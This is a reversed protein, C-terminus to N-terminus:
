APEVSSPEIPAFMDWINDYIIESKRQRFHQGPDAFIELEGAPVFTQIGHRSASAAGAAHDRFYHTCLLTHPRRFRSPLDRLWHGTGANVFVTGGPHSVAYVNCSDRYSEVNPLVPRWGLQDDRHM